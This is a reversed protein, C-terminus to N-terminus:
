LKTYNYLEFDSGAWENVLELVEPTNIDDWTKYYATRSMTFIKPITVPTDVFPLANFQTDADEIQVYADMKMDDLRTRFYVNTPTLAAAIRLRDELNQKGYHVMNDQEKIAWKLVPVIGLPQGIRKQMQAGHIADPNLILSWASAFKSYPSRVTCFRFYGEASEPLCNHHYGGYREGDFQTTLVEYMTHTGTKPISVFAYKRKDSIIM